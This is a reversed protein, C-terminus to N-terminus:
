WLKKTLVQASLKKMFLLKNDLKTRMSIVTGKLNAKNLKAHSFDTNNLKANNLRAGSLDASNFKADNLRTGSLDANRLKSNTLKAGSLDADNLKADSLKAGSLDADNLKANTLKACSLDASSCNANNLNANNLNARSLDANSLNANSLDANNLNASSLNANSLNAGTLNVDTLNANNLKAGSLNVGALDSNSINIWSLDAGSFDRGQVNENFIQWILQWKQDLQKVTDIKTGKLNAWSLNANSLNAWSLKAFSLNANSLNANNLDSESLDANSLFTWSLDAWSLNTNSLDAWSLNAGSLNADGLNANSLNADSLNTGSLNTKSLNANSLNTNSLNAEGLNAGSLDASSLNTNSLDQKEGGQNFIQWVLRWKGDLKTVTDIKTGRLNANNLNVNSLNANSLKAWNLTAGSLNAGSMNTDNLKAWNLNADNLKAWSLNANSLNTDNLNARSLDADSLNANNLKTDSLDADSLKADSLDADSLNTNNLNAKNLQANSLNASILIAGSLNVNSLNAGSLNAENLTANTLNADSLNSGTLDANSLNAGSLNTESLDTGSLNVGSLNVGSLNAGKLNTANRLNIAQKKGENDRWKNWEQAGKRLIDLPKDSDIKDLKPVTDVPEPISQPQKDQSKKKRPYIEGSDGFKVREFLSSELGEALAFSDVGLKEKRECWCCRGYTRAYAHSEVVDCVELDNIGATLAQFWEDTTPRLHPQLHGDNFCRLFCSQIAPHVIDLPLTNNSHTFTSNPAELWFGYKIRQNTTPPEGSGQWYGSAFPHYSFLLQYIIIALRFHDHDKNQLTQSFDQGILEPPTYDATGVSCHYVEGTTPHVVQFSDTDIFSPLGRSNILINQPKVDGIIYGAQHISKMIAAINLATTHLFHWDVELKRIRRIKPSYIDILETSQQIHQMLFGVYHGQADQLLSQPFAFSNHNLNQNPDNPQHTIMVELKAIRAETAKKYVKALMGQRSTQWVAGEGSDAIKDTLTINQNTQTCRLKKM